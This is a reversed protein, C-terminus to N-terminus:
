GQQDVALNAGLGIIADVDPRDDPVMFKRVFPSLGELYWQQL